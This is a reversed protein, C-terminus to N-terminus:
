PAQGECKVQFYGNTVTHGGSVSLATFVNFNLGGSSNSTWPTNYLFCDLSSANYGICDCLVRSNNAFTGNAVSGSTYTGTSSYAPPTFVGCSDEVETCTGTTCASGSALTAGAGGFAAYCTKPKTVGPATVVEKFSGVITRSAQYDATSKDCTIKVTGNTIAAATSSNIVEINTIGTTSVTAIGGVRAYKTSANTVIDLECIPTESYFGSNFTITRVTSTGGVSAIFDVNEGSITGASVDLYATHTNECNAGCQSAFVQTSGSLNAIPISAFLSFSNGAGMFGSGNQKTLAANTSQSFGFTVYSVSPEILVSPMIAGSNTSFGGTGVIQISPIAGSTYGNPLTMRAETATSTGSVFKGRIEINSGVQRWEMCNSCTVTGFGTFTPTYSQWPTIVSVDAIGADTGVYADDVYVDGTVNGSSVIAIGNSTAGFVFPVKYLMWKNDSNVTACPSTQTVGALRPCVSIGSLSTKIRVSAVGPVGDAFQAEYRETDQSLNITEASLTVKLSRAGDIVTSIDSAATGNINNWGIGASLYNDFSPNTLLNKNGTEILVEGDAAVETLQDNPTVLKTVSYLSGLQTAGGISTTEWSPAAAGNSKLVTGFAGAALEEVSDADTYLIKGAGASLAKNTGGKALPLITITDEKGALATTVAAQDAKLDLADQTDDSIPKDADSTNDANGLGVMAKTIGSVTGTFTPSALDAKLDLATQTATSVPKAADSTNDVSGLGVAAKNLAQFTKDGRYYDASTTATIAPEKNNFTTWNATSLLGRNAASATPINLTIVNAAASVAFDTGASGAAISIAPGGQGNITTLSGGASAALPLWNTSLGADQKVYVTGSTAWYQSGASANVASSSPDLAGTLFQVGNQFQLENTLNKAKSPGWIIPSSAFAPASLLLLLLAIVFNGIKM